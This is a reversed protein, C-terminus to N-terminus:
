FGAGPHLMRAFERAAEVIRPGPVVYIDSAVAYVRRNRVAALMPMRAAWTAAVARKQAETVGATDAMEGMDIIVEPNRAVLAELSIKSYNSVTDRFVNVGGAIGILEDLHSGRGAVVIDEVRGPTRGAVFMVRPHKLRATRESIAGLDSRIRAALREARDPVGAARGITDIAELIEAVSGNRVELAPLTLQVSGRVGTSESIVLDPRLGVIRELNPHLFDGIKPKKAAEPPYHCYTTVGVVRDGLGLEYLIETISPSTSV